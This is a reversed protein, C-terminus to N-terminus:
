LQSEQLSINIHKVLDSRIPAIHNIVDYSIQTYELAYANHEDKALYGLNYLIRLVVLCEFNKLVEEDNGTHSCIFSLADMVVSFLEKNEEEGNLLRKLLSLLRISVDREMVKGRLEHHFNQESQAGVLRWVEKGRVLSVESLSFDQLSFRLKSREERVSQAVAKIRGLDETFMDVFQNAEGLPTAGLILAKTQYRHHAM